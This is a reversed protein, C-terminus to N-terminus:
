NPVVITAEEKEMSAGGPGVKLASKKYHLIMNWLPALEIEVTVQATGDELVKQSGDVVHAGQQFDLMLTRIEDSEAVFDKVSTESTILLGQIQEALKRRADLEAARFAMLKAQAANANEQDIAADGVARMTQSVWDPANIQLEAAAIAVRPVDKLYREPPVGQGTEKIVKDESRVALEELQEIKVAGGKYHASGWAKLSAYVTRLTVEMEVEVILEDEHYRIGAERAGQLFTAMSVNIDDSEAVFDKVTTQSTIFVGKIREALRRMGDVRAARVAMLRGQGTVHAMWFEKAKPSMNSISMLDGERVAVFDGGAQEWTEPRPAGMGTETIVKTKNTVTMQDFDEAKFKDGKYYRNRISKLNVIVDVLTVEMVVECTGDEMYKVSKERMGSLFAVLATNIQDSEAVFDKVTTESTIFLGKIREALKRIGDARAARQALLKNQAKRKELVADQALLPGAFVAAVVAGLLIRSVKSM